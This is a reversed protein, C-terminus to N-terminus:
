PRKDVLLTTRLAARSWRREVLANGLVVENTNVRAYASGSKTTAASASWGPTLGALLAVVACLLLPRRM